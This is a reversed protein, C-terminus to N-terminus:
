RALNKINGAIAGGETKATSGPRRNGSPAPPPAAAQRQSNIYQRNEQDQATYIQKLQERYFKEAEEYYARAAKIQDESAVKGQGYAMGESTTKGQADKIASMSTGTRMAQLIEMVEQGYEPRTGGGMNNQVAFTIYDNPTPPKDKLDRAVRQEPTGNAAVYASWAQTPSTAGETYTNLQAPTYPAIVIQGKDNKYAHGPPVSWNAQATQNRAAAEDRQQQIKENEQQFERPKWDEKFKQERTQLEQAAKNHAVTAERSRMLSDLDLRKNAHEEQEMKIKMNVLQKAREREAGPEVLVRNYLNDANEPNWASTAGGGILGGLARGLMNPDRPDASGVAQLFGLGAGQLAHFFRGWGTHEKAKGTGGPVPTGDPFREVHKRSYKERYADGADGEEVTFGTLDIGPAGGSASVGAGKAAATAQPGLASLDPLVKGLNLPKNM